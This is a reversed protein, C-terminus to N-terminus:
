RNIITKEKHHRTTCVWCKDYVYSHYCMLDGVSARGVLGVVRHRLLPPPDRERPCCACSPLVRRALLCAPLAGFTLFYADWGTYITRPPARIYWYRKDQAAGTHVTIVIRRGFKM